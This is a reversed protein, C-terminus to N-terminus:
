LQWWYKPYSLRSGSYLAGRKGPENVTAMLVKPLIAPQWLIISRDEEGHIIEGVSGEAARGHMIEGVSGEAARGYIIEGVSGEAVRGHM